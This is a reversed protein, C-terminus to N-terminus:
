IQSSWYEHDELLVVDSKYDIQSAHENYTALSRCDEPLGQYFSEITFFLEDRYFALTEFSLQGSSFKKLYRDMILLCFEALSSFWLEIQTKSKVPALERYKSVHVVKKSWEYALLRYIEILPELSPDFIPSAGRPQSKQLLDAKVYTLNSLDSKHKESTDLWSSEMGFVFNPMGLFRTKGAHKAFLTKLSNINQEISNVTTNRNFTIFSLTVFIEREILSEIAAYVSNVSLKKKLADLDTQFLSEVGIFVQVLGSRKFADYQNFKELTDARCYIQYKLKPFRQEILNLLRLKEPYLRADAGLFESDYFLINTVGMEYYTSIDSLIDHVTRTAWPTPYNQGSNIFCFSCPFHCGRSTELGAKFRRKQHLTLSPNHFYPKARLGNQYTGGDLPLKLATALVIEDHVVLQTNVPWELEKLRGTQGYLYIPASSRERIKVCIRRVYHVCEVTERVAIIFASNDVLFLNDVNLTRDLHFDYVTFNSHGISFLYGLFYSIIPEEFTELDSFKYTFPPRIIALM